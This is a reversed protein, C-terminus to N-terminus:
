RRLLHPVNFLARVEAALLDRAHVLAKTGHVGVLLAEDRHLLERQQGLQTAVRQALANDRGEVRVLYFDLRRM